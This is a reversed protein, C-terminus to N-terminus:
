AFSPSPVDAGLRVGARRLFYQSPSSFSMRVLPRKGSPSTIPSVMDSTTRLVVLWSLASSRSASIAYRRLTGANGSSGLYRPIAAASSRNGHFFGLTQDLQNRSQPAVRPGQHPVAGGGVIEHLVRELAGPRLQM